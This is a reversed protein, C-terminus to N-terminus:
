HGEFAVKFYSWLYKQSLLLDITTEQMQPNCTEREIKLASLYRSKMATALVYKDLVLKVKLSKNTKYVKNYFIYIFNTTLLYIFKQILVDNSFSGIKNTSNQQQM